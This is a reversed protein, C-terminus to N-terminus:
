MCGPTGACGGGGGGGTGGNAVIMITNFAIFGIIIALLQHGTAVLFRLLLISGIFGLFLCIGKLM